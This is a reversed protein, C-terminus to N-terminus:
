GEVCNEIVKKSEYAKKVYDPINNDFINKIQEANNILWIFRDLIDEESRLEKYNIVAKDPLGIDKAIGVSKISYGLALSPVRTSYASIMAHTRAGIFYSCNSIIYRIQCYNYREADFVSIRAENPFWSLVDECVKRDDQGPWFVHPLLLISYSTEELIYSILRMINKAFLSEKSVDAGVFNSLNIGIVEHSFIKPLDIKKAELVFAPDPYCLVHEIGLENKLLEYTLSERAVICDFTKLAELKADTLNHKGISCGWLVYKSKKLDIVRHLLVVENDDYCFMDGGTSLILKVNNSDLDKIFNKNDYKIRIIDRNKKLINRHIKNLKDSFYNANNNKKLTCEIDSLREDLKINRSYVTIDDVGDIIKNTGEAIAECGRNGMDYYFPMLIMFIKRATESTFRRVELGKRYRLYLSMAVSSSEFIYIKCREISMKLYM